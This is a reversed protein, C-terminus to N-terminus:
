HHHTLGNLSSIGGSINGISTDVYNKDVLSHTVFTSSYDGAYVLGRGNNIDTIIASDGIGISMTTGGNITLLQDAGLTTNTGDLSFDKIKTFTFDYANGLGNIITNRDLNGGLAVFDNSLTLGNVVNVDLTGSNATLGKGQLNSAAVEYDIAIIDNSITIGSGAELNTSATSNGVYSIIQEASWVDNSGTGSDNFNINADFTHTNIFM